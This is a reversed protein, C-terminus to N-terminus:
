KLPFAAGGHTATITKPTPSLRGPALPLCDAPSEPRTTRVPVSVPTDKGIASYMGFPEDQHWRVAGSGGARHRGDCRPQQQICCRTTRTMYPFLVNMTITRVFGFFRPGWTKPSIEPFRSRCRRDHIGRVTGCIDRHRLASPGYPSKRGSWSIGTSMVIVCRSSRVTRESPPMM